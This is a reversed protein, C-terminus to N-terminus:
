AAKRWKDAGPYVVDSNLRFVRDRDAAGMGVQDFYIKTDDADQGTADNQIGPFAGNCESGFLLNDIPVAGLVALLDQVCYVCGDVFVIGEGLLEDPTMWGLYRNKKALATWRGKQCGLAGGGHPVMFRLNGFEKRLKRGHMMLHVFAVMDAILYQLATHPFLPNISESGHLILPKDVDSAAGFISYNVESAFSDKSNWLGGTGDPDMNFGAFGKEAWAYIQRACHLAAKGPDKSSQGLMGVPIFRGPNLQCARLILSNNLDAWRGNQAVDGVHTAMAAARPSVFADTTGRTEMLRLVTALNKQILADSIDPLDPNSGALDATRFGEVAQEKALEVLHLHTDSVHM